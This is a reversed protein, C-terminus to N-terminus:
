LSLEPLPDLTCQHPTPDTSLAAPALGENAAFDLFSQQEGEGLCFQMGVNDAIMPDLIGDWLVDPLSAGEGAIPLYAEAILTYADQPMGGNNEFTNGHIYSRKPWQDTAPDNSGGSGQLLALIEYSVVMVGSGGNGRITNDRIETDLAGGVIMTGTGRPVAAVVTGAQAFNARNNDYVLNNRILAASGDKKEKNPLVLVLIGATNDFVENDYVDAGTTNEIELGAVNAHVKNNRVIAHRCQGVYIGADSAGTVETEEILTRECNTPYVAYFGNETVSGADWSVKLKRFVSDDARVEVGNGLTNKMWMNEITFGDSTVLLGKNGVSQGAFDLIASEVTSGIGKFTIDRAASLSLERTVSYSGPALCITDGSAADILASQLTEADDEGPALTVTCDGAGGEPDSGTGGSGTGGSGSDGSGPGPTEDDSGCGSSLTFLGVLLFSPLVNRKM